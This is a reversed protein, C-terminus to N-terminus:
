LGGARCVNTALPVQKAYRDPYASRQVRQCLTGVAIGQWGSIRKMESFFQGASCTADM